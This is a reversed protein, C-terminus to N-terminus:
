PTAGKLTVLVDFRASGSYGDNMVPGDLRARAIWDQAQLTEILAVVDRKAYGTLRIEDGILVLESIWVEDDVIRTLEALRWSRGRAAELKARDEPGGTQAAERQTLEARRAVAAEGLTRAEAELAPLQGQLETLAQREAWLGPGLVAVPLLLALLTWLRAGRMGAARNDIFPAVEPLGALRAQTLRPGLKTVLGQVQAAKLVYAPLVLTEGERRAPGLRWVLGRGQLPLTQRLEVEAMQAAKRGVKAPLRVERVLCAEPAIEVLVAGRTVAELAPDASLAKGVTVRRARRLGFGPALVWDPVLRVGSLRQGFVAM